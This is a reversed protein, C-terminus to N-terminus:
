LSLMIKEALRTYIENKAKAVADYETKSTKTVSFDEEFYCYNKILNYCDAKAKITATVTGDENTTIEGYKISGFLLYTTRNQFLKKANALLGATDNAVVYRTFDSNGVNRFGALMLNKLVASSSATNTTIAKGAKTFDVLAISGGSSFINTKVRYPITVSTATYQEDSISFTVVTDASFTPINALFSVEGKEDSAIIQKEYTIKGKEKNIPYTIEVPVNQLTEQNEGTLKVTFPTKFGKSVSTSAPMSVTTMTVSIIKPEEIVEPVVIPETVEVQQPISSTAEQMTTNPLEQTPINKEPTSKCSILLLILLCLTLVNKNM